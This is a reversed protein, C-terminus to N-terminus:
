CVEDRWPACAGTYDIGRIGPLIAHGSNIAFLSVLISIILIVKMKLNMDLVSELFQKQFQLVLLLHLNYLTGCSKPIVRNMNKDWLLMKKYSIAALRRVLPISQDGV